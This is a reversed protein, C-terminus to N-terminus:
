GSMRLILSTPERLDALRCGSRETVFDLCAAETPLAQGGGELFKAFANYERVPNVRGCRGSSLPRMVSWCM